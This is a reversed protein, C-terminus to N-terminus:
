EAYIWDGNQFKIKRKVGDVEVHMQNNYSESVVWQGDKWVRIVNTQEEVLLDNTGDMNLDFAENVKGNDYDLAKYQIQDYLRNKDNDNFEALVSSIQSDSIHGFVVLKSQSSFYLIPKDDEWIFISRAGDGPFALKYGNLNCVFANKYWTVYKLVYVHIKPNDKESIETKTCYEINSLDIEAAFNKVCPFFIIACFIIINFILNRAKKNSIV